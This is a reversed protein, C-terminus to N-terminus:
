RKKLREDATACYEAETDFGIGRREAQAAALLTTGSGMFPDLVVDHKYSYLNILRTPLEVPFPAPHGVARASESKMQWVDLTAAMYEEKSITSEHPLGLAQRTKANLARDFRDKSAVIIRETIDRLVPNSAKCFSGWACSGSAGKSKQWIIEGRLFMGLDDQLIRIVDSSLSRYPKRGLNAVNIAFRGGPELVRYCAAFVDGLMQMFEIYTSPSSGDLEEYEKGAFYPPSTIMLAVSNTPLVDGVERADRNHITQVDTPVQNM